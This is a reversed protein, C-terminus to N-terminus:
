AKTKLTAETGSLASPQFDVAIELFVAQVSSLCTVLTSLFHLHTGGLVLFSRTQLAKRRLSPLVLRPVPGRLDQESEPAHRSQVYLSQNCTLVCPFWPMQVGNTRSNPVTRHHSPLPDCALIRTLLPPSYFYSARQIDAGTGTGVGGAGM